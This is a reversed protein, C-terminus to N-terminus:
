QGVLLGPQNSTLSEWSWKLSRNLFIHEDSQKHKWHLEYGNFKFWDILAEQNLDNFDLCILKAPNRKVNYGKLVGLESSQTDLSLFDVGPSGYEDLLANLTIAPLSVRNVEQNKQSIEENVRQLHRPHYAEYVGSLMESYGNIHFFDVRGSVPPSDIICGNWVNCWRNHLAQDAKSKIPEVLVGTWGKVKELWYTNSIDYGDWAGIEAFTGKHTENGTPYCLEQIVRSQGYQEVRHRDDM